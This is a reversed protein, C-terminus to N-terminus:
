TESEGFARSEDTQSTGGVYNTSGIGNRALKFEVLRDRRSKAFKLVISVAIDGM